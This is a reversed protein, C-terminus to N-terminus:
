FECVWVEMSYDMKVNGCAECNSPRASATKLSGLLRSEEQFGEVWYSCATCNHQFFFIRRKLLGV